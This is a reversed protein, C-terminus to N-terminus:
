GSKYAKRLDPLYLTMAAFRTDTARPTACARPRSGVWRQRRHWPSPTAFAVARGSEFRGHLQRVAAGGVEDSSHQAIDASDIGLVHREIHIAEARPAFDSDRPLSLPRERSKPVAFPPAGTSAVDVAVPPFPRRATLAILALDHRAPHATV